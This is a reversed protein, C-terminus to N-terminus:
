FAPDRIRVWELWRVEWSGDRVEIWKTLVCTNERRPNSEGEELGGWVLAYVVAYGVEGNTVAAASISSSALGPGRWNM